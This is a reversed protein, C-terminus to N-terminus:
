DKPKWNQLLTLPAPRDVGSTMLGLFKGDKSVDLSELPRAAKFLERPTAPHFEQGERTVAEMVAGAPNLYYLKKGDPSWQATRSDAEYKAGDNSIQWKRGSPYESVYLEWRRSENSLYAFYKGDPSLAVAVQDFPGAILPARPGGDVPLLVIDFSTVSEQATAILAKEDPTWDAVGLYLNTQLIKKPQAGQEDAIFVKTAFGNTSVYALRKSDRAWAASYGSPEFTLRSLTKRGSNGFWLDGLTNGAPYLAVIFQDTEPNFRPATFTDVEGIEEMAIGRGDFMHIQQRTASPKRLLVTGDRAVSFNGLAKPHYYEVQGAVTKPTGTLKTAGTDFDQALLNGDKMLFLQGNAYAVNSGAEILLHPEGGDMGATVVQNRQVGGENRIRVFVLNKGDPLFYPLRDSMREPNPVPTKTVAAPTGGNESVRMLPGDINPAYVIDGKDNWTGGRAEQTDALIQVTENAVDVRKLKGEAFFGLSRSNASWFPYFAGETGALRRSVPKSLERVWLTQKAGETAIFAVQTADPSIVVHQSTVIDSFQMGPPATIESWVMPEAAPGPRLAWALLALAVMWGAVALIPAYRKLKAAAPRSLKETLAAAHSGSESVWKLESRIDGATQWREDPDKALARKVVHEFAAPTLPQISSIPEPEKELIASMVSIQSKGEFARKGTAMEYLVAGYAFIDSRADAEKGELQEPSMYQFTGVITGAQTVPSAPSTRTVAATLATASGAAGVALGSAKALGFDMLKAGGKTLMINGPKLDRHLIGQRHARDLADAIEIGTKLVQDIPLAGKQQVRASLTEGELFEMVLFDVGDQSGVDFLACIHPHQLASISKAEREFRQKLGPDSSLHSPLVKIAVTRDLRTDRAKYVEGMGGAGAPSLIEYPGLLAGATLPM